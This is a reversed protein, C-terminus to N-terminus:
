HHHVAPTTTNHHTTHRCGSLIISTRHNDHNVTRPVAPARSTSHTSSGGVWEAPRGTSRRTRYSSSSGRRETRSRAVYQLLRVCLWHTVTGRCPPPPSSCSAFNRRRYSCAVTTTTIRKKEHDSAEKSSWGLLALPAGLDQEASVLSSCSVLHLVVLINVGCQKGSIPALPPSYAM